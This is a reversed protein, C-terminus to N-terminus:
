NRGRTETGNKAVAKSIVRYIKNKRSLQDSASYLAEMPSYFGILLIFLCPIVVICYANSFIDVKGGIKIIVYFALPLVVSAALLLSPLWGSTCFVKNLLINLLQLVGYARINSELIAANSDFDDTTADLAEIGTRYWIMGLSVKMVEHLLDCKVQM